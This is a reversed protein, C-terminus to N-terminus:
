NERYNYNKINYQSLNLKPSNFIYDYIKKQYIEKVCYSLIIKLNNAKSTLIRGNIKYNLYNKQLYLNIMKNDISGNEFFINNKNNLIPCKFPYNIPYCYNLNALSDYYHHQKINPCNKACDTNILLEVKKRLEWPISNLFKFDKNYIFPLCVYQYQDSNLESIIEEKSLCKTLSSIFKYKPYKNKIYNELGKNNITILNYDEECIKLFMNCFKDNYDKSTIASNTLVFRMPIHLINNYIYKINYIDEETTFNFQTEYAQARGGDWPCFYFNGYVANIKINDKFLEPQNYYLSLLPILNDHFGWLGPLSFHIM